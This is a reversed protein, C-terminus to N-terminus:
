KFKVKGKKAKREKSPLQEECDEFEDCYEKDPCDVFEQYKLCVNEEFEVCNICCRRDEFM